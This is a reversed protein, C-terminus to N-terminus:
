KKNGNKVIRFGISSYRISPNDNSRISAWMYSPPNLWNGGRSVHSSDVVLIDYLDNKEDYLKEKMRGLKSLGNHAQELADLREQQLERFTGDDADYIYSWSTRLSELRDVEGWLQDEREKIEEIQALLQTRKQKLEAIHSRDKVPNKM